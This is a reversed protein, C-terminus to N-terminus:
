AKRHELHKVSSPNPAAHLVLAGCPVKAATDALAASQDCLWCIVLLSLCPKNTHIMLDVVLVLKQKRSSELIKEIFLCSDPELSVM